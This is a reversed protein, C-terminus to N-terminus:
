STPFRLRAKIEDSTLIAGPPCAVLLGEQTHSKDSEVPTVVVPEAWPSDDPNFQVIRARVYVVQGTRLTRDERVKSALRGTRPDYEWSREGSVILRGDDTVVNTVSETKSM